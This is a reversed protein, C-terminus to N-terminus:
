ILAKYVNKNETVQWATCIFLKRSIILIDIQFMLFLINNKRPEKLFDAQNEIIPLVACQTPKCFDTLWPIRNLIPQHM